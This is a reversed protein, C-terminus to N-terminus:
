HPEIMEQLLSPLRGFSLCYLWGQTDPDHFNSTELMRMSVIYQVEPILYHHALDFTLMFTTFASFLILKTFGYTQFVLNLSLTNYIICRGMFVSYSFVALYGCDLLVPWNKKIKLMHMGTMNLDQVLSVM